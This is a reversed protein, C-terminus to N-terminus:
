TQAKLSQNAVTLLSNLVSQEEAYKTSFPVSYAYLYAWVDAEAWDYIPYVYALNSAGDAVFYNAVGQTGDVQLRYHVSPDINRPYQKVVFPLSYLYQLSEPRVADVKDPRARHIVDVDPYLDQTLSCVVASKKGGSHGICVASHQCMAVAKRIRSQAELVKQDLEALALRIDTKSVM